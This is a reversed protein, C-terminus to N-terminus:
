TQRLGRVLHLEIRRIHEIRHKGKRKARDVAVRKEGVQVRSRVNPTFRRRVVDIRVQGQTRLPRGVAGFTVFVM